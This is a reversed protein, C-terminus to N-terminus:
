TAHLIHCYVKKGSAAHELRLLKHSLIVGVGTTEHLVCIMILVYVTM